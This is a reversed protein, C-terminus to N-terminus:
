EEIGPWQRFRKAIAASDQRTASFVVSYSLRDNVQDPRNAVPQVFDPVVHEPLEAASKFASIVRNWPSTRSAGVVPMALTRMLM